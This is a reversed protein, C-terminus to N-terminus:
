AAGAAARSTAAAAAVTAAVATATATAATVDDDLLQLLFLLFLVTFFPDLFLLFSGVGCLSGGFHLIVASSQLLSLCSAVGFGGCSGEYRM